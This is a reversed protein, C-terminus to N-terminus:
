PIFHITLPIIVFLVLGWLAAVLGIGETGGQRKIISYSLFIAGAIWAIIAEANLM